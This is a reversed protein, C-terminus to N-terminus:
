PPGPTWVLTEPGLVEANDAIEALLGLAELASSYILDLETISRCDYVAYSKRFFQYERLADPANIPYEAVDPLSCVGVCTDRAQLTTADLTERQYLFLEIPLLAVPLLDTVTQTVELRIRFYDYRAGIVRSMEEKKLQIRTALQHNWHSYPLM